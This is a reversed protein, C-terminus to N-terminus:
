TWGDRLINKIARYEYSGYASARKCAATAREVPFTELHVVIAQVTRLMSLVDDSDFVARVYAGWRRRARTRASNETSAAATGGRRVNPRCTSTARAACRSGEGSTALWARTSLTSISPPPRAM